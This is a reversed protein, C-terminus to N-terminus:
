LPDRADILIFAIRCPETGNNVWAHNTAQMVVIDGATLHRTEEDLMLDIEGALVLGFDVSRTRHMMPHRSPRAKAAEQELGALEIFYRPNEQEFDPSMPPFDVIRFLTGNPDPHLGKMKTAFDDTGSCEAPSSDLVWLPWSVPRGPRTVNAAPGDSLFVAKGSADHTTVVRRVPKNFDM